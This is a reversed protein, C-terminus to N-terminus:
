SRGSPAPFRHASPLLSAIWALRHLSGDSHDAAIGAAYRGGHPHCWAINGHLVSGDVVLRVRAGPLVPAGLSLGLGGSSVDNIAVGFARGPGADELLELTGNLHVPFRAHRRSERGM